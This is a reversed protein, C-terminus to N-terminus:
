SPSSVSAARAAFGSAMPTIRPPWPMVAQPAVLSSTSALLRSIMSFAVVNRASCPFGSGNPATTGPM